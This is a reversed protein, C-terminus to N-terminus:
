EIDRWKRIQSIGSKIMYFGMLTWLVIIMFLCYVSGTIYEKDLQLVGYYNLGQVIVAGLVLVVVERFLTYVTEQMSEEEIFRFCTCTTFITKVIGLLM